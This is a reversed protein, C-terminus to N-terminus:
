TPRTPCPDISRYGCAGIQSSRPSPNDPLSSIASLFTILVERCQLSSNFEYVGCVCVCMCPSVNLYAELELFKIVIDRQFFVSMSLVNNM